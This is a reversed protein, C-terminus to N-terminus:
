FSWRLGAKIAHHSLDVEFPVSLVPPAAGTVEISPAAFYSYGVDLDLSPSLSIAVGAMVQYALVTAEDDVGVPSLPPTFSADVQVSAAGIGAGVYPTFAGDGGFDYYANLMLSTAGISGGPDLLPATELDNERRALEGEIRWGNGLTYGIGASGMIAGELPVDGGIPAGASIDASGEVSHGLDARVYWNDEAQAISPVGAVIAVIALSCVRGSRGARNRLAGSAAILAKSM